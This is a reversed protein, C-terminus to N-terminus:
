FWISDAFSFVFLIYSILLPYLDLKLPLPFLIFSPQPCSPCLIYLLDLADIQKLIFVYVVNYPPAPTPAENLATSYSGQSSNDLLKATEKFHANLPLYLIRPPIISTHYFNYRLNVRQHVLASPTTTTSNFAFSPLSFFCRLPGHSPCLPFIVM